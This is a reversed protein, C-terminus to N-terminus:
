SCLRESLGGFVRLFKGRSGGLRSWFSAAASDVADTDLPFFLNQLLWHPDPQDRQLLSEHEIPCLNLNLM